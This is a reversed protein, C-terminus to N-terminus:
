EKGMLENIIRVVKEPQPVALFEFEPASGATQIFVDGYNFLVRIFGGRRMTVDEIRSLTTASVEKHLINAFDVDVIRENTVISLDFFWLLFNVFMYSFTLLYWSLILFTIVREPILFPLINEITLVPFILIPALVLIASIVVWSFNTILHRRLFLVIVENDGQTEFRIGTPQYLYSSFVQKLKPIQHRYDFTKAKEAKPPSSSPQKSAVFIDPM